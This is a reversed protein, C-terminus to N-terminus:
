LAGPFAAGSTGPLLRLSLACERLLGGEAAWRGEPCQVNLSFLLDARSAVCSINRRRWGYQQSEVVYEFWVYEEGREDGFRGADVLEATRGSGEPAVTTVLFKGATERPSGLQAIAFGPMIPAVIVSVNEEGTGGMPGFAATPEFLDRRRRADRGERISPPDLRQEMRLANRRAITQDALWRSPYLFEYGNADDRCRKKGAVPVVIDLGTAGALRGGDLSLLASTVGGLNGGLAVFTALSFGTVLRRRSPLRGGWAVM